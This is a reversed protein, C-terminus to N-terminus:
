TRREWSKGSSNGTFGLRQLCGHIYRTIGKAGGPEDLTPVAVVIARWLANYKVTTRDAAYRKIAAEVASYDISSPSPAKAKQEKEWAAGMADALTRLDSGSAKLSSVLMRAAVLVTNDNADDLKLLIKFVKKGVPGAAAAHDDDAVDPRSHKAEAAARASRERALEAKLAAIEAAASASAKVQEAIRAKLQVNEETSPGTERAADLEQVQAKLAEIERDRTALAPSLAPSPQRTQRPEHPQPKPQTRKWAEVVANPHNYRRRQPGPLTARWAGVEPHDMVFRLRSREQKSLPRHAPDNHARQEYEDWKRNFLKVLPKNDKDWGAVTLAACAEETIVLMAEGIDIWREWTQNSYIFRLAELGREKIENKRHEDARTTHPEAAQERARREAQYEEFSQPVM